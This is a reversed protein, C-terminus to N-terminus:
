VVSGADCSIILLEDGRELRALDGVLVEVMAIVEPQGPDLDPPDSQLSCRFGDRHRDPLKGGVVPVRVAVVVRHRAEPHAHYANADVTVRRKGEVVQQSGLRVEEVLVQGKQV